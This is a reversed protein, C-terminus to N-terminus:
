RCPAATKTCVPPNCLSNIGAPIRRRMAAKGSAPTAPSTMTRRTSPPKPISPKLFEVEFGEPTARVERIGNRRFTKRRRSASSTAPTKDASGVATTFAASISSRWRSRSRRVLPRPFQRRRRRRETPQVPVGGGPIRGRSKPALLSDFLPHRVRLRHGARSVGSAGAGVNASLVRRQREADLPAAGSDRALHEPKSRPTPKPGFRSPVGYHRGPVLHNIENFTNQVGQNDTVFIEDDENIALGTPYRFAHGVPVMSWPLVDEDGFENKPRLEPRSSAAHMGQTVVVSGAGNRPKRRVNPNPM